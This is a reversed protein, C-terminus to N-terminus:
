CCAASQCFYALAMQLVLFSQASVQSSSHLFKTFLEQTEELRLRYDHNEAELASIKMHLEEREKQLDTILRYHFFFYM